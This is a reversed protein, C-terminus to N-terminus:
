RHIIPLFIRNNLLAVESDLWDPIGDLDADILEDKDLISDGDSDIDVYNALSDKDADNDFCISAQATCNRLRDEAGTSWEAGDPLGDADSDTDLYNPVTDNDVDDPQPGTRETKTLISDNDDDADLYNPIRDADTDDTTPTGRGDVNEDKTLITDNDDDPDDQNAIGDSDSDGGELFNPVTDADDDDNFVNGDGNSDEDKTLIGDGDDDTDLYNPITDRDTDDDLVNGNGNPDELLTPVGDNDDDPDLYNPISDGDSDDNALNGDENTDEGLNVISDQDDDAITATLCALAEYDKYATPFPAVLTSKGTAPDVTFLRNQDKLDPGRDGTSGYLQGDNFFSLGEMDDVAEAPNDLYVLPGVESIAGTQKNIVILTGNKGGDNEIGYLAGTFPNFAIDDVDAELKATVGIEVYDAGNFAGPKLQGTSLDIQILLDPFLEDPLGTGPPPIQRQVAYLVNTLPDWSLGDLDNIEVQVSGAHLIGIRNLATFKGTLLNITGMEAANAAYLTASNPEFAIAEIDEVGTPGVDATNGSIKNLSVFRDGEDGVAYCTDLAWATAPRLAVFLAAVLISFGWPFLLRLISLRTHAIM